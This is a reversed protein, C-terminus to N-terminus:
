HTIKRIKVIGITLFVITIASLILTDMNLNSLMIDGKMINEFGSIMWAQPVFKSLTQMFPPVIELPWYVGGLMCTSVIIISNTIETQKRTKMLSAMMIPYGVILLITLSAFPILYLLNGWDVDFVLKMVIMLTGLQLWGLIFYSLLYGSLVQFSSIPSVMLRQWTKEEREVHISSAANGLAFMMFMITFGIPLTNVEKENNDELPGSEVAIIQESVLDQVIQEFAEDNVETVDVQEIDHFIQHVSQSIGELYPSLVLYQETKQNVIVDFLADKEILREEVDEPIVVAAIVERDAVLQRATELSEQQWVYEDNQELLHILEEAYKGESQVVPIETEVQEGSSLSGFILSFITPMVFLFILTVPTKLMLKLRFLIISKIERM